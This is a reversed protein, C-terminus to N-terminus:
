INLLIGPWVLLLNVIAKYTLSAANVQPSWGMLNRGKANVSELALLLQAIDEHYESVDLM